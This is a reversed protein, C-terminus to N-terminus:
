DLGTILDSKNILSTETRKPLYVVKTTVFHQDISDLSGPLSWHLALFNPAKEDFAMSSSQNYLVGYLKANIDFM